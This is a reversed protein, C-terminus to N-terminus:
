LNTVLIYIGLGILVFPLLVDARREIARGLRPRSAIAAALLCWLGALALFAAVVADLRDPGVSAFLPVYVGLNDGGNAIGVGAVTSVRSTVGLSYGGTLARAIPAPLVDLDGGRLALLGIAIPFLGLLGLYPEFTLLAGAAGVLSAVVLAGFGLYQGVLVERFRYDPSACFVTLALLDDLNTAVFALVALALMGLM